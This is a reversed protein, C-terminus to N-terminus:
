TICRFTNICEGNAVVHIILMKMRTTLECQVTLTSPESLHRITAFPKVLLCQVKVDMIICQTRLNSQGKHLYGLENILLM